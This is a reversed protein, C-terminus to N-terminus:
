LNERGTFESPVLITSAHKVAYKTSWKLYLRQRLGYVKPHRDFAIDHIMIVSKKPRKLPLVHSPVFLVDPKDQRMKKSLGLLTWFRKREIVVQMEKPFNPLLERVYLKVEHGSNEAYKTLRNIIEYSYKEVGTAQSHGYRSADIAIKM